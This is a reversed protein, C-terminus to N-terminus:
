RLAPVAVDAADVFHEVRRYPKAFEVFRRASRRNIRLHTPLNVMEAAVRESVPCMGDHYGFTEPDTEAPHLPCEFWTGVEVAAKMADALFRNRDAVRLPYRVLPQDRGRTVEDGLVDRYYASLRRRHSLNRALRALECLGVRAQLDSMGMVYNPPIRTDFEDATASGIVLGRATLWRFIAQALLITRPYVLLHHALMQAALMWAQKRTPSVQERDRFAEVADALEPENVLLVGGLGTTYHKNWQSSFFAFRGFTGLARGEYTCGLAHCCDEVVALRHDNAWALIRRMDAPYGYTHQVIVVRTRPTRAAELLDPDLNYDSERIDVYVPKAGTYVIASPVMSCTYGPVIVEDGAGVGTARLGVHLAVRGKWFAFARSGHFLREYAHEYAAVAPGPEHWGAGLLARLLTGRKESDHTPLRISSPRPQCHTM